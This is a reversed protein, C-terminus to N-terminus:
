KEDGKIATIKEVIADYVLKNGINSLHNALGPHKSQINKFDLFNKEIKFKEQFILNTLVILNDTTIMNNIKERLLTYITEQYEEDNHYVFFNFASTSALFILSLGSCSLVQFLPM